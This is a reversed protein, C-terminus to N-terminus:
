GPLPERWWGVGPWYKSARLLIEKSELYARVDKVDATVWCYKRPRYVIELDIGQKGIREKLGKGQYGMNAWLKRLCPFQDKLKSVM